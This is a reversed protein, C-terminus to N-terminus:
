ARSSWCRPTVTSGWSHRTTVSIGSGPRPFEKRWSVFRTVEERQGDQGSSEALMNGVVVNQDRSLASVVGSPCWCSNTRPTSTSGCFAAARPM